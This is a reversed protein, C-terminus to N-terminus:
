GQLYSIFRLEEYIDQDEKLKQFMVKVREKIFGYIDPKCEIAQEHQPQKGDRVDEAVQLLVGWIQGIVTRTVFNILGKLISALKPECYMKFCVLIPTEKYVNKTKLLTPHNPPCPRFLLAGGFDVRVVDPDPPPVVGGVTDLTHLRVAFYGNRDIDDVVVTNMIVERPSFPWPVDGVVQIIQNLRGIQQLQKSSRLGIRPTRWSPVWTHYLNSENLVSILPILLSPEIPTEVRCTFRGNEELKHYIVTDRHGHTEGHKRWEKEDPELALDSIAHECEEAIQCMALHRAELLQSNVNRLVRCAELVKGDTFLEEALNIWEENSRFGVVTEDLTVQRVM